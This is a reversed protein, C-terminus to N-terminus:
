PGLRNHQRPMEHLLSKATVCPKFPTPATQIGPPEIDTVSSLRHHLANGREMM